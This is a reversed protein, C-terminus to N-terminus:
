ADTEIELAGANELATRILKVRQKDTSAVLVGFRDLSFRPDTALKTAPKAVNPLRSLSLFGLMGGIAGFLITLEFAIVVFPPISILPKGGTILPWEYVTYIPLAFGSICGLLAGILTFTRIPSIAEDLAHDIDHNPSPSYATITGLDADRIATIALAATRGSDFIGRIYTTEM